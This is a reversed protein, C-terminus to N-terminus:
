CLDVFYYCAVFLVIVVDDKKSFVNKACLFENHFTKNSLPRYKYLPTEDAM